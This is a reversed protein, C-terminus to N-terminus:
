GKKMEETAKELWARASPPVAVTIVAPFISDTFTLEASEL